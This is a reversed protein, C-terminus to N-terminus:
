GAATDNPCENLVADAMNTDIQLNTFQLQSNLKSTKSQIVTGENYRTQMLSNNQEKTRPENHISDERTGEAKCIRCKQNM